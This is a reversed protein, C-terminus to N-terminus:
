FQPLSPRGLYRFGPYEVDVLPCKMSSYDHLYPALVGPSIKTDLGVKNEMSYSVAAPWLQAMCAVCIRQRAEARRMQFRHAVWAGAVALTILFLIIKFNRSVPHSYEM